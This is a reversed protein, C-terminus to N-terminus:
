RADEKESIKVDEVRGNDWRIHLYREPQTATAPLRYTWRHKDEYLPPTPALKRVNDRSLRSLIYHAEQQQVLGREWRSIFLANVRELTDSGDKIKLVMQRQLGMLGAVEPSEPYALVFLEALQLCEAFRQQLLRRQILDLWAKESQAADHAQDLAQLFREAESQLILATAQTKAEDPPLTPNTEAGPLAQETLELLRQTAERAAAAQEELANPAASLLPALLLGSLLFANRLM